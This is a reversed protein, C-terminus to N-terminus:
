SHQDAGLELETHPVETSQVPDQIEENASFHFLQWVSLLFEFLKRFGHFEEPMLLIALEAKLQNIDLHILILFFV